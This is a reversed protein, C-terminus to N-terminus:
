PWFRGNQSVSAMKAIKHCGGPRTPAEGPRGVIEACQQSGVSHASINISRLHSHPPSPPQMLQNLFSIKSNWGTDSGSSTIKTGWRTCKFDCVLDM